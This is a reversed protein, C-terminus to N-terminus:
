AYPIVFANCVYSDNICEFTKLNKWPFDSILFGGCLTSLEHMQLKVISLLICHVNQFHHYQSGLYESIFTLFIAESVFVVNGILFHM